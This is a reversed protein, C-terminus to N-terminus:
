DGIPRCAVNPIYVPADREEVIAKSRGQRHLVKLHKDLSQEREKCKYIVYQKTILIWAYNPEKMESYEWTSVICWCKYEM